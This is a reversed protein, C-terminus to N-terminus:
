RAMSGAPESALPRSGAPEAEAPGEPEVDYSYSRYSSVSQNLKNVVLGLVRAHVNELRALTEHLEPVKVRGAEVVVIAAGAEASLAAADSVPLLPPADIIVLDFTNRMIRLSERMADSSLIENPNPVPTGAPIVFLRGDQDVPLAFDDFNREGLLLDSLGRSRNAGIRGGVSPRRLDGDVLLVRQGANATFRALALAVTSKGEAPLSSTVVLSKVPDDVDAFQLSVRLARLAEDRQEALLQTRKSRDRVGATPSVNPMVTLVAPTFEEQVRQVTRLVTDIRDRIVALLTGLILGIVIALALITKKRPSVPSRPLLGPSSVSVKVPSAGRTPRELREILNVMQAGVAQVIHLSRPASADTDALDILVTGTPVSASLENALDNSTMSLGLRHIVPLTVSPSKVLDVYSLVRGQTYQGGEYLEEANVGGVSPQTAVFLQEQAQYKPQATFIYACSGAIFVALVVVVSPWRRRIIRFFDALSMGGTDTHETAEHM